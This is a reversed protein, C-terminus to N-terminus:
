EYATVGERANFNDGLHIVKDEAGKIVPVVLDNAVIVKIRM